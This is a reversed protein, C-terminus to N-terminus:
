KSCDETRDYRHCKRIEDIGRSLSSITDIQTWSSVRVTEINFSWEMKPSLIVVYKEQFGAELTLTADRWLFSDTSFLQQVQLLPYQFDIASPTNHFICQAAGISISVMPPNSHTSINWEFWFRCHTTKSNLIATNRLSFTLEVRRINQLFTIVAAYVM